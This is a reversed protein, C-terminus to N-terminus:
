VVFVTLVSATVMLFGLWFGWHGIEGRSAPVALAVAVMVSIFRVAELVHKRKIAGRMASRVVLFVLFVLFGIPITNILWVRMMADADEAFGQEDGL